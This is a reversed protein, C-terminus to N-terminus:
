AEGCRATRAVWAASECPQPVRATETDPHSPWRSEDAGQAYRLRQYPPLQSFQQTPDPEHVWPYDAPAVWPQSDLPLRYGLPSDGPILYCRDDRLYWPGSRWRPSADRKPNRMVPLVHGVVRDLGQSFVKRLRDREMPDSLKADFPDVNSPLKHERWLYYW